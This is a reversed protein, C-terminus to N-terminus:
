LCIQNSLFSIDCVEWLGVVQSEYYKREHGAAFQEVLDRDRALVDASIEWVCSQQVLM